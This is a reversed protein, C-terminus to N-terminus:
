AGTYISVVFKVAWYVMLALTIALVVFFVAPPAPFIISFYYTV